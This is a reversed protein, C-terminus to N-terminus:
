GGNEQEGWVDMWGDMGIWGTWGCMGIWKMWKHICRGMLGFEWENM